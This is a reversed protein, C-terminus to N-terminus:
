KLLASWTADSAGKPTPLPKNYRGNISVKWLKPIGGRDKKTYVLFRSNPSWSPGEVLFNTSLIKENSGDANMVGIMFKGGRSKTFSIYRGDPSWVPTSYNGGGFSIRKINSGDKNMVYLQQSGGRDSNFVIKRDDPSYYPSTDIGSSNTLRVSRRSNLNYEYVETNGRAAVSLVIKNGSNSFRPAFSMGRFNGLVEEQGTQIDRIRVRPYGRKGYSLYVIEHEAPSFRPTLVLNRGSSLYKHNAGDQDMIALRKVRRNAPGEESIYVIRSDFLRGDGTINYYIEDAIKHAMRRWNDKSSTYRTAVLYKGNYVDWLAWEILMKGNGKDEVKGTLLVQADIQKWVGFNPVPNSLSFKQVYAQRAITKFFGTSELDTQIVNVIDRSVDSVSNQNPIFYPLAIPMASNSAKTIDIELSAYVPNIFTVLFLFSFIFKKFM